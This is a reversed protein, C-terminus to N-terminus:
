TIEVQNKGEFTMDNDDIPAEYLADFEPTLVILKGDKTAVTFYEQNPSWSATLIGEPVMGVEEISGSQDCKALLMTGNEFSLVM